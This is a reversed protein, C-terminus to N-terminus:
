AASVVEDLIVREWRVSHLPSQGRLQRGLEDALEQFDKNAEDGKKHVRRKEKVKEKSSDWKRKSQQKAQAETRKANPGCHYMLHVKMKNPYFLKNCYQCRAKPWFFKAILKVANRCDGCICLNKRVGLPTGSPTSVLGFAIALRESHYM